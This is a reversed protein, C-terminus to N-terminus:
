RLPPPGPFAAEEDSILRPGLFELEQHMSRHRSRVALLSLLTFKAAMAPDRQHLLTQHIVISRAFPDFTSV